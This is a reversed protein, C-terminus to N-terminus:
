YYTIPPRSAVLQRMDKGHTCALYDNHLFTTVRKILQFRTYSDAVRSVTLTFQIQVSPSVLYIYLASRSSLRRFETFSRSICCEHLVIYGTAEM